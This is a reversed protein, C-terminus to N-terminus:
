AARELILTVPGANEVYVRMDAGFQGTAVQIQQQRLHNVLHNFVLEAQGAQASQGYDPRNGNAVQGAVTFNSVLLLEGGVDILSRNMKGQEDNFVRLQMLKRALWEVQSAGDGKEIAVFVCLGHHIAGIVNGAVSVQAQSVRQVVAKMALVGSM